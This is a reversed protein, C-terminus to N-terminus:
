LSLILVCSSIHQLLSIAVPGGTAATERLIPASRGAPKWTTVGPMHCLALGRALTRGPKLSCDIVLLLGRETVTYIGVMVCQWSAEIKFAIFITPLWSM